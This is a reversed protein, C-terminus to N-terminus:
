ATLGWTDGEHPSTIRVNNAVLWKTVEAELDANYNASNAIIMPQSFCNCVLKNANCFTLLLKALKCNNGLVFNIQLNNLETKTLTVVIPEEYNGVATIATM